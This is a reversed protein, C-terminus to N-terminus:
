GSYFKKFQSDIDYKSVIDKLPQFSPSETMTNPHPVGLWRCVEMELHHEFVLDTDQDGQGSYAVFRAAARAVERLVANEERLRLIGGKDEIMSAVSIWGLKKAAEDLAFYRKYYERYFELENDMIIYSTDSPKAGLCYKKKVLPHVISNGCLM